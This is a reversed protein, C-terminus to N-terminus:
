GSSGSQQRMRGEGVAETATLTRLSAMSGHFWGKAKREGLTNLLRSPTRWSMRREAPSSSVKSLLMKTRSNLTNWWYYLGGDIPATIGWACFVLGLTNQGIWPVLHSGKPLWPKRWINGSPMLVRTAVQEWDIITYMKDHMRKTGEWRRRVSKWIRTAWLNM